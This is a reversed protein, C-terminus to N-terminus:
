KRRIGLMGGWSGKLDQLRPPTIIRGRNVKRKPDQFARFSYIYDIEWERFPKTESTDGHCYAVLKTWDGDRVMEFRDVEKNCVECVPCRFTARRLEQKEAM